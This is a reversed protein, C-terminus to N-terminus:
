QLRPVLIMTVPQALVMRVLDRCRPPRRVCALHLGQAAAHELLPVVLIALYLHRRELNRPFRHNEPAARFPIM